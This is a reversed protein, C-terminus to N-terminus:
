RTAKSSLLAAMLTWAARSGSIILVSGQNSTVCHQLPALVPGESSRDGEESPEQGVDFAPLAAVELWGYRM